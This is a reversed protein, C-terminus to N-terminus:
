PCVTLTQSPSAPPGAYDLPPALAPPPRLPPWDTPTPTTNLVICMTLPFPRTHTRKSAQRADAARRTRSQTRHLQAQPNQHWGGVPHGTSAPDRGLVTMCSTSDRIICQQQQQQHHLAVCTDEQPNKHCGAGAKPVANCSPALKMAWLHPYAQLTGILSLYYTLPLCPLHGCGGLYSQIDQRLLLAHM